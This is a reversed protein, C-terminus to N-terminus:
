ISRGDSIVAKDLQTFMDEPTNRVQYLSNNIKLASTEWRNYCSTIVTRCLVKVTM